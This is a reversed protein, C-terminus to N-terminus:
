LREKIQSDFIDGINDSMKNFLISEELVQDKTYDVTKATILAGSYKTTDVNIFCKNYKFDIKSGLYQNDKFNTLVHIYNSDELIDIKNEKIDRVFNNIKQQLLPSEKRPNYPDYDINLGYSLIRSWMAMYVDDKSIHENFKSIMEKYQDDISVKVDYVYNYENIGNNYYWITDFSDDLYKEKLTGDKFLEGNLNKLRRNLDNYEDETIEEIDYRIDEKICQYLFEDMDDDKIKDITRIKLNEYPLTTKLYYYKDM